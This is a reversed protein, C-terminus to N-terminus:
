NRIRPDLWVYSLDILLNILVYVASFILIVGQIVPYDRRLIADLVLRGLGPIAFVSETVVVGGIMVAFTAGITTVIPISANRLAHRWLLRKPAVGKARATRIYDSKLVEVLSVRTIRAIIAIFVLSVTIVPLVLSRIAGLPDDLMSVYGSTPLWHLDIAFVWILIYGTVFVPTSFGLTAGILIIRDIFGDRFWASLVGALVGISSSLVLVALALFITPEMRQRFLETVPLKSFISTGLDGKLFSGLWTGYQVVVPENLGLRERMQEIEQPSGYNGLANTAPDGPTFRALAFVCISVVLMVLVAALIRKLIFGAM